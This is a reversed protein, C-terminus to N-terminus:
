NWSGFFCLSTSVTLIPAAGVTSVKPQETLIKTFARAFTDAKGGELFGKKVPEAATKEGDDEDERGEEESSEAGDDELDADGFEDDM